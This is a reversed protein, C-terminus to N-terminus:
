RYLLQRHVEDWCWRKKNDYWENEPELYAMGAVKWLILAWHNDVWAKTALSCGEEKLKALAEDPGIREQTQGPAYFTYYPAISPHMQELADQISQM